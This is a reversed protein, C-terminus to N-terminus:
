HHQRVRSPTPSGGGLWLSSAMGSSEPLSSELAEIVSDVTGDDVFVQLQPGWGHDTSRATDFGLIESGWGLRGAAHPVEGLVPAVVEAYFMGNLELAPLFAAATQEDSEVTATRNASATVRSM